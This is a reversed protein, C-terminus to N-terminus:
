CRQKGFVAGRCRCASAPSTALVRWTLRASSPRISAMSSRHFPLGRYLVTPTRPSPRGDEARLRFPRRVSSAAQVDRAGVGLGPSPRALGLGM